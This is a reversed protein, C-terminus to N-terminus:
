PRIISGVTSSRAPTASAGRLLAVGLWISWVPALLIGLLGIPLLVFSWMMAAGAGLMLFGLAKPLDNSRLAAWGALALAWGAAFLAGANAANGVVRLTLYIAAGAAPDHQHASV